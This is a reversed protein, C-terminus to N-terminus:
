KNVAFVTVSIGNIIVFSKASFVVNTDTGNLLMAGLSGSIIQLLDWEKSLLLCIFHVAFQLLILGRTKLM